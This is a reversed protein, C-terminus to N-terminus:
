SAPADDGQEHVPAGARTLLRRARDVMPTDIMRGDLQAAASGQEVARAMADLVARAHAVERASPTFADNLVDVQAPHICLAGLYGFARSRRADAALAPLDRFNTLSGLLGYPALGHARAACVILGHAWRLDADPSTPDVELETALDEVGLMLAVTRRGAAAIEAVALLGRSTEVLLEVQVSGAALGHEREAGDLLAEVELVTRASEVMPVVLGDAGAAVAARVDDALDAGANVRVLVPLGPRADRVRVMLDALGRRAAPREAPPLSDELDLIVADAGSGAAKAAREPRNAPLFLQTRRPTTPASM